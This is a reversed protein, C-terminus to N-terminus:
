NACGLGLPIEVGPHTNNKGAGGRVEYYGPCIGTDGQMRSAGRELYTALTYSLRDHSVTYVYGYGPLGSVAAANRPDKPCYSYLIDEKFLGFSDIHGEPTTCNSPHSGDVGPGNLFGPKDIIDAAGDHECSFTTDVTAADNFNSTDVYDGNGCPYLGHTSFYLELGKSFTNLDHLRAADRARARADNLNVIAIVSLNSIIGIVVLLEILTFGINQKQKKLM